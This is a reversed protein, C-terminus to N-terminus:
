DALRTYFCSFFATLWFCPCQQSDQEWGTLFLIGLGQSRCERLGPVPNGASPVSRTHSLFISLPPILCFTQYRRKRHIPVAQRKRLRHTDLCEGFTQVPMGTHPARWDKQEREAELLSKRGKGYWGCLRGHAVWFFASDTRRSPSSGGM